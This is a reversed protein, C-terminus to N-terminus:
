HGALKRAIDRKGQVAFEELTELRRFLEHDRSRGHYLDLVAAVTIGHGARRVLEVPDGARIEGEEITRMHFGCRGSEQMRQHLGAIGTLRDITGCPDRPLSVQALAGGVRLLDGICLEEERAGEMLLNESFSGFALEIGGAKWWAYHEAPYVCAARDRGGHHTLNGQGDGHFGDLTLRAAVAPSKAGGTFLSAGGIEVPRPMGIFLGAVRM